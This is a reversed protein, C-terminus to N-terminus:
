DLAFFIDQYVLIAQDQLENPLYRGGLWGEHKAGPFLDQKTFAPTRAVNTSPAGWKQNAAYFTYGGDTPSFAASEPGTLYNMGLKVTIYDNGAPAVTNFQNASRVLQSARREVQLVSLEYAHGRDEIKYGDGLPVPNQRTGVKAAPAPRGASSGKDDSAVVAATEQKKSPGAVVGILVILAIFGVIVGGIIKLAKM